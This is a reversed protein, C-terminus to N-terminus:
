VIALDARILYLEMKPAKSGFLVFLSKMISVVKSFRVTESSKVECHVAGHKLPSDDITLTNQWFYEQFLMYIAPPNRHFHAAPKTARRDRISESISGGRAM